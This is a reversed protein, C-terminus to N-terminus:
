SRLSRPPSEFSSELAALISEAEDADREPAEDLYRELDRRLRWAEFTSISLDGREIKEVVAVAWWPTTEYQERAEDLRDLMVHHLVWEQAPDLDVRQVDGSGNQPTTSM